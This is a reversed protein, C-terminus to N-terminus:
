PMRLQWFSLRFYIMERSFFRGPRGHRRIHEVLQTFLVEDVRERVIYEHPWEPMTRAFVWDEGNVFARLDPPLCEESRSM